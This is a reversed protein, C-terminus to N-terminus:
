VRRRSAVHQYIEVTRAATYNWSFCKLREKGAAVLDTRLSEEKLLRKLGQYCVKSDRMDVLMAADQALEPISSGNHALVPVGCAMAELIPLGFGEYLSPFVFVEAATYAAVLEYESLNQLVHVCEAPRETTLLAQGRWSGGVLVLDRGLTQGAQSFLNLLMAVNKRPEAGGMTMVYPRDVGLGLMINRAQAPTM